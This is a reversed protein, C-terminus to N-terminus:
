KNNTNFINISSLAMQMFNINQQNITDINKNLYHFIYNKDNHNETLHELQSYHKTFYETSLKMYDNFIKSMDSDQIKVLQKLFEMPLLEYGNQQQELIIQILTIKTLDIGSKYDIVKVNYGNQILKGLHDLTIYSSTETNYLRRNPYKKILINKESIM